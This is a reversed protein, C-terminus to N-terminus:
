WNCFIHTCAYSCTQWTLLRDICKTRRNQGSRRVEYERNAQAIPKTMRNPWEYAPPGSLVYADRPLIGLLIVHTHPLKSRLLWLAQRM